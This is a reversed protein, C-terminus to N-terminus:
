RRDVPLWRVSCRAPSAIPGYSGERGRARWSVGLSTRDSRGFNQSLCSLDPRRRRRTCAATEDDCTTRGGLVAASGCCCPEFHEGRRARILIRHTSRPVDRTPEPRAAGLTADGMRHPISSPPHGLLGRGGVRQLQHAAAGLRGVATVEIVHRAQETGIGDPIHRRQSSITASPSSKTTERTAKTPCPAREPAGSWRRQILTM